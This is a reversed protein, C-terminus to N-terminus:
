LRGVVRPPPFLRYIHRGTYRPLHVGQIHVGTYGLYTYGATCGTCVAPMYVSRARDTCPGTHPIHLESLPVM